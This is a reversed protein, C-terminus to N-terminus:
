APAQAVQAVRGAPVPWENPATCARQLVGVPQPAIYSRVRAHPFVEPPDSANEGASQQGFEPIGTCLCPKGYKGCHREAFTDRQTRDLRETRTNPRWLM